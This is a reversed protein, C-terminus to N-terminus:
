QDVFFVSSNTVSIITGNSCSASSYSSLFCFVSFLFVPILFIPVFLFACICACFIYLFTIFAHFFAPSFKGRLSPCLPCILSSKARKKCIRLSVFFIPCFNREFFQVIQQSITGSNTCSALFVLSQEWFCRTFFIDFFPTSM